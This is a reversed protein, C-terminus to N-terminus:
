QTKPPGPGTAGAQPGRPPSLRIGKEKARADAVSRRELVLRAREEPTQASQMQRRYADREAPTMLESREVRPAQTQSSPAGPSHQGHAAAAAALLAGVSAALVRAPIM